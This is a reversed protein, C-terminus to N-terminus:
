RITVAAPGATCTCTRLCLRVPTNRNMGQRGRRQAVVLHSSGMYLRLVLHVLVCLPEAVTDVTLWCFTSVLVAVDHGIVSGMQLAVGRGAPRRDPSLTNVDCEDRVPRLPEATYM